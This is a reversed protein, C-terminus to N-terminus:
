IISEIELSLGLAPASYTLAGSSIWDVGTKAVEAITKENINGSAETLARGDILQVAERLMEPNMNDLLIADVGVELAERVQELTETEVEIKMGAPALKRAASIAPIVGGACEIHNDKILVADYLGIRHNTGGGMRVAYKQLIRLGPVTKRTDVVKASTGKVLEVFSATKTAVGSLQQLFNLATREATLVARANGQVKLLIQGPIIRDGDNAFLELKVDPDLREFARCAVPMGALVGHAKAILVAKAQCEAPITAESTIDGTGIDEAFAATLIPDIQSLELM